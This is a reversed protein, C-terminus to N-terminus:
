GLMGGLMSSLWALLLNIMIWIGGIIGLPLGIGTAKMKIQNGLALLYINWAGFITFQQALSHGFASTERSVLFGLAVRFMMDGSMGIGVWTVVIGVIQPVFAHTVIAWEDKFGIETGSLSNFLLSLIAAALALFVVSIGATAVFMQTRNAVSGAQQAARQRIEAPIAGPRRAEIADFQQSTARQLLTTPVGASIGLSVVVLLLLPVLARPRQALETFVQGPEDFVRFALWWPSKPTEAVPAAM